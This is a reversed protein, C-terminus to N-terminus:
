RTTALGHQQPQQQASLKAKLLPSFARRYQFAVAVWLLAAVLGPAIAAPMLTIHFVLINYIVGALVLLGIPAFVNFLVFAGAILEALDVFAVWHSAFFVDQFTGALGPPAPPPNNIFFFGSLGAAFFILGLVIRVATAAINM